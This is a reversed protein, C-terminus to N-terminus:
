LTLPRPRCANGQRKRTQNIRIERTDASAYTLLLRARRGRGSASILDPKLARAHAM